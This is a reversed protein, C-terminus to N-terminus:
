IFEKVVRPTLKSLIEYSITGCMKAIDEVTINENDWLYVDTGVKVDEFDTIDIMFGDMNIVGLINALKGNVVVKGQYCRMIGDAYGIPITAVRIKEEVRYSRNYSISDGVNNEHIYIIKTKLITAPILDIKGKLNEDPLHGYISIGPRVMNYHAEPFNIIGGTNCAHVYRIDNFKEKAINVAGNFRKIQEKTYDMDTDSSSFHTYIGDLKINELKKFLEAYSDIDNPNIGTRGMGTDIELHVKVVKKDEKAAMNFKEIFDALCVSPILDYELLKEIEEEYPQYLVVIEGKYGQERLSIGEDIVAVALINIKLDDFISIVTNLGTGYGRAKVVPMVTVSNGVMNQIQTINHKVANTDVVLKTPRIM